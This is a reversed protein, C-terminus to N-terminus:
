PTRARPPNFREMRVKERAYAAAAYRTFEAPSRYNLPQNLQDLVKKGEPTELAAKFADHIIAVRGQALKDPGAIGYPSEVVIDVGLERLTPVSPFQVVRKPTLMALYRLRGSQIHASAVGSLIGADIHGGLLDSAQEADGKYPVRNLDIGVAQALEELVISPTQVPGAAGVSIKGPRKKADALFEDWSKWPADQKVALGFSYDTMGMIYTFKMPDWAVRNLYPERYVSAPLVAITYGDPQARALEAAGFTGNAGPKNDIIVPQGLRSAAQQAVVRLHVDTPGGAGYPVVLRIPKTPFAAAQQAGVTGMAPVAVVAAATALLRRRSLTVGPRSQLSRQM